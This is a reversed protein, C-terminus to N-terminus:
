TPMFLHDNDKMSINGKLVLVEVPKEIKNLIYGRKEQDYYGITVFKLAGIGHVIGNTINKIKCIRTLEVILDSGRSLRGVIVENKLKFTKPIM